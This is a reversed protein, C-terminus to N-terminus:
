GFHGQINDPAKFVFIATAPTPSPPIMNFNLKGEDRGIVEETDLIHYGWVVAYSFASSPGQFTGPEPPPAGPLNGDFDNHLGIRALNSLKKGRAESAALPPPQRPDCGRGGLKEKRRQTLRGEGEGCLGGPAELGHSSGRPLIGRLPPPGLGSCCLGSICPFFKPLGPCGLRM